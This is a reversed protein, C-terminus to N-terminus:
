STKKWPAISTGSIELCLFQHELFIQEQGNFHRNSVDSISGLHRDFSRGSWVFGHLYLMALNDKNKLFFPQRLKTTM